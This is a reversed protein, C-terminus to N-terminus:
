DARVAKIVYMQGRSQCTATAEDGPLSQVQGVLRCTDDAIFRTAAEVASRAEIVQATREAVMLNQDGVRNLFTRSVNYLV